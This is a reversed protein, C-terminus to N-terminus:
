DAALKELILEVGRKMDDFSMSPSNKGVVQEDLYPVHIFGSRVTSRLTALQLRYFVENCVYLGASNSVRAPVGNATLHEALARVPLTSPLALPSGPEIPVDLYSVGANDKQDGDIMNIALREFEIASRGGAQGLSLVIDPRFTRLESELKAFGEGFVVPLLLGRLEIGPPVQFTAEVLMRTPNITEGGFAEFGTILIRRRPAAKVSRSNM